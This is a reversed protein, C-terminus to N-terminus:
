LDEELYEVKGRDEGRTEHDPFTEPKDCVCFRRNDNDEPAYFHVVNTIRNRAGCRRM